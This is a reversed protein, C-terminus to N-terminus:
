IALVPPSVKQSAKVPAVLNEYAQSVEKWNFFVGILIGMSMRFAAIKNDSMKVIPTAVKVTLEKMTSDTAVRTSQAKSTKVFCDRLPSIDFKHGNAPWFATLREDM